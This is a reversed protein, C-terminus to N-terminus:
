MREPTEVFDDPYFLFLACMRDQHCVVFRGDEVPMEVLETPCSLFLARAMIMTLATKICQIASVLWVHLSMEMEGGVKISHDVAVRQCTSFSVTDKEFARGGAFVQERGGHKPQAHM